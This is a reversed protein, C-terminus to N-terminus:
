CCTSKRAKHISQPIRQGTDRIVQLHIRHKRVETRDQEKRRGHRLLTMTPGPQHRPKPLPHEAPKHQLSRTPPHDKRILSVTPPKRQGNKRRPHLRARLSQSRATQRGNCDRTPHIREKAIGVDNADGGLGREISRCLREIYKRLIGMGLSSQESLM